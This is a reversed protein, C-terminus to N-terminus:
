ITGSVSICFINAGGGIAMNSVPKPLDYVYEPFVPLTPSVQGIGNVAQIRFFNWGETCITSVRLEMREVGDIHQISAIASESGNPPTHYVIYYTANSVPKFYIIPHLEPEKYNAFEEDHVELALVDGPAYNLLTNDEGSVIYLGNIAIYADGDFSLSVNSSGYGEYNTTEKIAM